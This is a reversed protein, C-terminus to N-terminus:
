AKMLMSSWCAVPSNNQVIVHEGDSIVGHERGRVYNLLVDVSGLHGYRRCNDRCAEIFKVGLAEENYKFAQISLNQMIYHNVKSLDSKKRLDENIRRYNNRSAIALDFKYKENTCQEVLDEQRINKYDVRFLDWYRGDTIVELDLIQNKETKSVVTAFSADGVITVAERYRRTGFPKSSGCVLVNGLGEYGLLARALRLAGSINACGLGGVELAMGSRIGINEQVRTAESSMLFAPARSQTYLVAGIDSPMLEAQELADRAARTAMAVDDMSEEIAVTEMGALTTEFIKRQADSLETLEPLERIPVFTTPLHFQLATLGIM